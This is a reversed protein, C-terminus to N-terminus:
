GQIEVTNIDDLKNTYFNVYSDLKMKLDLQLILYSSTSDITFKSILKLNDSKM